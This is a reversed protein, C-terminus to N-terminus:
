LSAWRDSPAQEETPPTLPVRAFDGRVRRRVPVIARRSARGANGAPRHPWAGDGRHSRGADRRRSRAFRDVGSAANSCRAACARECSWAHRPIWRPSRSTWSCRARSARSLARSRWASASGVRSRGSMAIRWTHRAWANSGHRLRPRRERTFTPSGSRSTALADLHPFLAYDQPLYGLRRNEAPVDAHTDFLTRGDLAIRGRDPRSVGLLLLLLTSKGAGNPGAVLLTEAGVSLELALDLTGIRKALSVELM